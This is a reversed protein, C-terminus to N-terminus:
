PLAALRFVFPVGNPFNAISRILGADRLFVLARSLESPKHGFIELESYSAARKGKPGCIEVIDHIVM